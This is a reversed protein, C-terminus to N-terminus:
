PLRQRWAFFAGLVAFLIAVLAVIQVLASGSKKRAEITRTPAEAEEARAAKRSAGKAKALAHLARLDDRM